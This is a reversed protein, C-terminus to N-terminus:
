CITFGILKMKKQVLLFNREIEDKCCEVYIFVLNYRDYFYLNSMFQLM